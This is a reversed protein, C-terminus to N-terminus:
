DASSESSTLPGNVIDAHRCRASALTHFRRRVPHLDGGRQGPHNRNTLLVWIGAGSSEAWVSVGTFGTHGFATAPLSDGASCGRTAAIQWGWGREQALGGTQSTVARGVEESTLLNTGGGCYEATLRRVGRVTGFLGANGAAGDFFRANGDDPLGRGVAPIWGPDLGLDLVLRQEALPRSAGGAVPRQSPEPNFGLDSVLGTPVLVGNHFLRELDSGSVEELMLGLIIFGVCSYIVREGPRSELEIRRLVQPVDTRRGEALCYFPLWAPLGSTHTLLHHIELEGVQSGATERLVEGVGTTPALVGERFALLSLTTTVLPKTLSALDFWTDIAVGRPSDRVEARGEVCNSVSEGARGWEAIAGPFRGAAVARALLKSVGQDAKGTV